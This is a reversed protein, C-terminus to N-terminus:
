RSRGGGGDGRGVASEAGRAPAPAAVPAAAAAPAGASASASPSYGGYARGSAQTYGYDSNYSYRPGGDLGATSAPNRGSYVPVAPRYIAFYADRPRLFCGGFWASCITRGYPLFTFMGFYPNWYWSSGRGRDSGNDYASKAAYVNAMSLYGARRRSWRVLPDTEDANFKALKLDDLPTMAGKKLNLKQTGRAVEAQGEFVRLAPENGASLEYVGTRKPSISSEGVQIAISTEKVLEDIVLVAKGETLELRVDELKNSIMKVAADEGVWLIAGPSLLVEARGDKTSLVADKKIESPQSFTKTSVAQPVQAGNILVTGEVYNVLGAKTSVVEQALALGAAAAFLGILKM